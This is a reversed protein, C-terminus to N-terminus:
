KRALAFETPRRNGEVADVALDAGPQGEGAVPRAEPDIAAAEPEVMVVDVLRHGPAHRPDLQGQVVHDPGARLERGLVFVGVVVDAAVAVEDAPPQPDGEPRRGRRALHRRLPQPHDVADLAIDVDDDALRALLRDLIRDGLHIELLHDLDVGVGLEGGREGGAGVLQDNEVVHAGVIEAVLRDAGVLGQLAAARGDLDPAEFRAGDAIEGRGAVPRRDIEVAVTEDQLDGVAGMEGARSTVPFLGPSLLLTLFSPTRPAAFM